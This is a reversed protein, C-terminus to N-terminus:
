FLRKAFQTGYVNQMVNSLEISSTLRYLQMIPEIGIFHSKILNPDDLGRFARFRFHGSDCNQFNQFLIYKFNLLIRLHMM